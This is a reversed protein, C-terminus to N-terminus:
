KEWQNESRCNESPKSIMERYKKPTVETFKKFIRTFYNIDLVGCYSAITQIQLQTTNLLLIAHEVRKKNVYDTLTLGTEKKFLTSLYGASINFMESLAKLGLDSTLNLDIQNIVKQIIPSYGKVSYNRVLLCYKHLMERELSHEAASTLAEIKRAFKSSLQDLYVPHVAGQEAAKRLITNFVIMYNKYDRLTNEMRPIYRISNEKSFLQDILALNGQAVAQMLQNEFTYRAEVININTPLLYSEEELDSVFERAYPMNWLNGYVASVSYHSNEWIIDCLTSILNKFQTESNVFAINYYYNELIPLLNAPINLADLLTLYNKQNIHIYTFPGIIFYQLKEPNPLQMCVYSCYYEDTLYYLTNERCADMFYTFDEKKNFGKYLSERLGCDISQIEEFPEEYIVTPIHRNELVKRVYTLVSDYHM